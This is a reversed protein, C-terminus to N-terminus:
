AIETFVSVLNRCPGTRAHSPATLFTGLVDCVPSQSGERAGGPVAIASAPLSKRGLLTLALPDRPPESPSIISGQMSSIGVTLKWFYRVGWFPWDNSFQYPCSQIKEACVRAPTRSITNHLTLCVCDRGASALINCGWGPTLMLMSGAHSHLTFFSKVYERM